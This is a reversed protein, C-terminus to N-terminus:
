SKKPNKKMKKFEFKPRNTVARYRFRSSRNSRNRDTLFVRGTGGRVVGRSLTDDDRGSGTGTGSFMEQNGTWM